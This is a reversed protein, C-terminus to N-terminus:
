KGKIAAVERPALRGTVRGQAMETRAQVENRILRTQDRTFFMQGQSVDELSKQNWHACMIGDRSHHDPGLLLHGIEHAMAYALIQSASAIQSAAAEEVRQYFVWADSASGNRALVLAFGMEERSSEFRAAMSPPLIKLNVTIAGLPTECPPVQEELSRAAGCELWVAEVGAKRFIRTGEEEARLLTGDTVGAYNYIRVTIQFRTEVEGPADKGASCAAAVTLLIAFSLVAQSWPKQRSKSGSETSDAEQGKHNM